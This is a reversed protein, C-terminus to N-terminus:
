YFFIGQIVASSPTSSSPIERMCTTNMYFSRATYFFYLKSDFRELIFNVHLIETKLTFLNSNALDDYFRQSTLLSSHFQLIFINWSFFLRYLQTSFYFHCIERIRSESIHLLTFCVHLHSLNHLLANKLTQNPYRVGWHPQIM